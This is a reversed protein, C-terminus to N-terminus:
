PNFSRTVPTECDDRPGIHLTPRPTLRWDNQGYFAEFHQSWFADANRPFSGNNPLGLLFAASSAGVGTGGSTLANQRTWNSNDFTFIGQNGISKNAQQMVWHEAGVKWTM